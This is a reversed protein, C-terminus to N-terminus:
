INQSFEIPRYSVHMLQQLQRQQQQMMIQQQISSVDEGNMQKQHLQQPGPQQGPGPGQAPPKNGGMQEGWSTGGAMLEDPLTNELLIM